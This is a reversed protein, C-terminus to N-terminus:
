ITTMVPSHSGHVAKTTPRNMSNPAPNCPWCRKTTNRMTNTPTTCITTAVLPLNLDKAIQLLDGIVRREIDLGHQMVEVYFNEKGFIDRFEAAADLAERYQGLRLRTQVEGSPCGTTAIIGESYENLLERDIRPWKAYVSDLSAHSGMRFLNHMGTNNKSLLTMHTYAGSGSVDDGRQDPDGWRVRTKDTRHQHGPTLYAELGIIPKIGYQQAKNWFDFAGFLYGHDTIAIAEQGLRNAEAFLEDLKAAGDLMSYETHTHLHVFGDRKGTSGGAM